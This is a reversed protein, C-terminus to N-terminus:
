AYLHAILLAKSSYLSYNSASIPSQHTILLALLTHLSYNCASIPCSTLSLFRKRRQYKAFNLSFHPIVLAKISFPSCNSASNSYLSYNSASNILLTGSLVRNIYGFRDDLHISLNRLTAYRGM